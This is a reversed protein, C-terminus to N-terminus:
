NLLTQADDVYTPQLDPNIDVTDGPLADLDVKGSLVHLPNRKDPFLANVRKLYGHPYGGFYGSKVRYNNGLILTGVARGDDAIFLAKPFGTVREYNDIRDQWTLGVSQPFRTEDIREELQM